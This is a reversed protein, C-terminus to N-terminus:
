LTSNQNAPMPLLFALFYCTEVPYKGNPYSSPVPNYEPNSNNPGVFHSAYINNLDAWMRYYDDFSSGPVGDIWPLNSYGNNPNPGFKWSGLNYWGLFAPQYGLGHYFSGTYTNGPIGFDPISISVTNFAAINLYNYLGGTSEYQGNLEDIIAGIAQSQGTNTSLDLQTIDIM